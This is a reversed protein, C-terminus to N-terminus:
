SRTATKTKKLSPLCLFAELLLCLLALLIFLPWIEKVLSTQDLNTSVNQDTAQPLLKGLEEESILTADYESKPTNFSYYENDLQYVGSDNFPNVQNSTTSPEIRRMLEADHPMQADGTSLQRGKSVYDTTSEALRFLLPIMIQGDGLNSWTYDPVNNLFYVNGMGHPIVGLLPTKDDYEALPTVKGNISVRKIAEFQSVPIPRQDYGDRLAQDKRNWKKVTFLSDTPAEEIKGWQVGLVNSNTTQEQTPPLFLINGGQQVMNLLQAKQEESPFAGQWIVLSPQPIAKFNYNSVKRTKFGQPAAMNQLIQRQGSDASYVYIQATPSQDFIFFAADDSTYDDTPISVSGYGQSVSAPLDFIKILNNTNGSLPVQHESTTGAINIQIPIEEVNNSLVGDRQITIDLILKNQKLTSSNIQVGRNGKPRQRSALIKIQPARADQDLQQRVTQWLPSDPVWSSTQMDSTIWIENNPTGAEKLHNIGKLILSPINSETETSKTYSIEQLSEPTEVEFIKGSASDIFSLRRYPVSPLTTQMQNIASERHSAMQNPKANMSASRDMIVVLEDMDSTNWKMISSMLPRSFALILSAVTLVRLALILYQLIKKKSKTERAAKLVFELAAWKVSRHRWKNFLHILIPLAALGLLWLMWPTTFAM